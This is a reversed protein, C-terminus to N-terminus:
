QLAMREEHKKMIANFKDVKAPDPHICILKGNEIRYNNLNISVLKQIEAIKEKTVGGKLIGKIKKELSRSPHDIHNKLYSKPILHRM